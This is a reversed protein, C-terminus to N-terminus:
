GKLLVFHFMNSFAKGQGHQFPEWMDVNEPICGFSIDRLEADQSFSAAVDVCCPSGDHFLMQILCFFCFSAYGKILM